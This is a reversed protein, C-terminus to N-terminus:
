RAGTKLFSRSRGKRIPRIGTHEEWRQCIVDCYKPDLEVLAGVRGAGHCAILTSGSGAFTDLVVDGRRSNNEIARRMLEVPKMTPHVDSRKPRPHHWVDTQKRGGTWDHGASEEWGYLMASFDPLFHPETPEASPEWGYLLAEHQVHYDSHGLVFQDKVWVIQQRLPMGAAVLAGRFVDQLNGTPACVYYAGGPVLVQAAIGFAADLLERLKDPTLDDNVITLGTGGKYSVGYPPDTLLLTAARDGLALRVHDLNAASGCVLRHPGLEWLDGVKTAPKGAPGLPADDPDSLNAPNLIGAILESDEHGTGALGFESQELRLLIAQMADRDNTARDSTGNDGVLIRLAEDDDVDLWLVPLVEAGRKLAAKYRGHGVLILGSSRQALVAGYFKNVDISESISDLDHKRYNDPHLQLRSVDALEYEQQLLDIVM